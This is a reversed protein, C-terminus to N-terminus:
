QERDLILLSGRRVVSQQVQIQVLELNDIIGAAVTGAVLQDALYGPRYSLQQAIPVHQRAQAAIFETRQERAARLFHRMQYERADYPDKQCGTAYRRGKPSM